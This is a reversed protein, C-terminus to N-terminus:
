RLAGTAPQLYDPIPNLRPDIGYPETGVDEVPPGQEILRAVAEREDGALAPLTACVAAVTDAWPSGSDQLALRLVELSARYRGLIQWAADLDGSAGFELIVALHDPLEGDTLTLGARRYAQKLEVLAVGRRRTDGCTFYTLHLCHQRTHDFTDVYDRQLRGLPTTALHEALREIPERVPAPLGAATSRVLDLRGLLTADPYDLLLSCVQWAAQLQEDPLRSTAGGRNRRFIM